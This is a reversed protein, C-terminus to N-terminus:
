VAGAGCLHEGSGVGAECVEHIGAFCFLVTVHPVSGMMHKFDCVDECM